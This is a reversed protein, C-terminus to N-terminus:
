AGDVSRVPPATRLRIFRVEERTGTKTARYREDEPEVVIAITLREYESDPLSRDSVDVREADRYVPM